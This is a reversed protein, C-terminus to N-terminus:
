EVKKFLWLIDLGVVFFKILVILPYLIIWITALTYMFGSYIGNLWFWKRKSHLADIVKERWSVESMDYNYHDLLSMLIVSVLWLVASVVIFNATIM